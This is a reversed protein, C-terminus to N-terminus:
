YSILFAHLYKYSTISAMSVLEYQGDLEGLDISLMTTEADNAVGELFM